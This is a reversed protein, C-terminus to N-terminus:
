IINLDTPPMNITAALIPHTDDGRTCFVKVSQVPNQGQFDDSSVDEVKIEAKYILGPPVLPIRLVYHSLQYISSKCHFIMTLDILAKDGNMNELNLILTFKPGLGLVQASLKILEKDNGVGTQDGQSQVLARAANLRLRILDQQFHQHMEIPNQRERASQELFLKSRKPLPLPKNQLIPNSATSQQTLNFDATRKLIKIDLIGSTTITVLVHDEQGMKGFLLSSPTDPISVYDVFHRTRYLHISGGKMGVGILTMSLHKLPVLTLCTIQQKLEQSWLKSGKKSYCSLTKDMTALIIFNDAPMIVMDVIYTTAQLVNRGELWGRRLLCVLGERTAILIRYEVDFLGIARIVSPTAKSVSVSAQHLISLNQPDLIYIQGIETALVPCSVSNWESSNRQLTTACTIPSYRKLEKDKFKDVFDAADEPKLLLLKQSRSTLTNYPVTKLSDVLQTLDHENKHKFKTWVEDELASIPLSPVSFKFYPKNNKYMLLDLGCTIGVAPVKPELNDPYFTIVASPIDPLTQDSTLLTGRYVKLRSRTDPQLKVDAVVLRHDGDGAVDALVAGNLLVQLGAGRDSHADLWRSINLDSRSM